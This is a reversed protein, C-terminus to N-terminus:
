TEPEADTLLTVSRGSVTLKGGVPVAEDHQGTTDLVVRWPGGWQSPLTWEIPEHHANFLVLFSDDVIRRGRPDVETISRGNIFSGVARAHSTSWDEDTMESGDPTCWGLDLTGRIPQGQFYRRRRFTPHDHRLRILRKTFELLDEDVHEWDHWSIENDQCYANN